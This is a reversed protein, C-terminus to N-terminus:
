SVRQSKTHAHLHTGNFPFPFIIISSTTHHDNRFMPDEEWQSNVKEFNGDKSDLTGGSFNNHFLLRQGIGTLYERREEPLGHVARVSQWNRCLNYPCCLVPSQHFTLSGRRQLGCLVDKKILGGMPQKAKPTVRAADLRRLISKSCGRILFHQDAKQFNGKIHMNKSFFRFLLFFSTFLISDLQFTCTKHYFPPNIVEPFCHDLRTKWSWVWCLISVRFLCNRLEDVPLSLCTSAIVKQSYKDPADQTM